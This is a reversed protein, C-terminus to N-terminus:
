ARNKRRLEAMRARVLRRVLATPVPRGLPFRITGKSTKYGKLRKAYARRIGATLPYLSTHRKWAACYVLPRGDLRFTPIGYSIGEVARPAAARIAHRLKQLARRADAPVSALYARVEMRARARKSASASALAVERVLRQRRKLSV